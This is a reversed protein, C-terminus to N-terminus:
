DRERGGERSAMTQMQQRREASLASLMADHSPAPLDILVEQIVALDTDAVARHLWEAPLLDMIKARLESHLDGLLMKGARVDLLEVLQAADESNRQQLTMYRDPSEMCEFVPKLVTLPINSLLDDGNQCLALARALDLPDMWRLAGSREAESLSLLFDVQEERPAMTVAAAVLMYGEDEKSKPPKSPADQATAARSM